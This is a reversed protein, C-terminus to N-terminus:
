RNGKLDGLVVNAIEEAANHNSIAKAAKTMAQYKGKDTALMDIKNPLSGLQFIRLGAGRELFLASNREEQGPYPLYILLPLGSVLCETSALGGTKTIAVDAMAMLDEMFNIRGFTKYVFDRDALNKKLRDNISFNKGAVLFLQLRSRCKLLTEVITEIHGIGYVGALVLVTFRQSDFGYKERLAKKDRTVFFRKEVPIGVSKIKDEGVGTYWEFEALEPVNDDAAVFYRDQGPALWVPHVGYDTIVTAVICQPNHVKKYRGAAWSSTFYASIIYDPKEDILYRNFRRLVIKWFTNQLPSPPKFRWLNSKREYLVYWLWPLKSAAYLYGRSFIDAIIPPLFKLVDVLRVEGKFGLHRIGQEIARCATEHGAGASAYLLFIKAKALEM